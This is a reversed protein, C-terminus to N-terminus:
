LEMLQSCQDENAMSENFSNCVLEAGVLDLIHRAQNRLINHAFDLVLASTM